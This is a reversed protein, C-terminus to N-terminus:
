WRCRRRAPGRTSGGSGPTPRREPRRSRRPRPAARRPWAASRPARRRWRRSRPRRAAPRPGRSGAGSRRPRPAPRRRRPAVGAAPGVRPGPQHHLRQEGVQPQPGAPQGLGLLEGLPRQAPEALDVVAVAHHLREAREVPGPGPEALLGVGLAADLLRDDSPLCNPSSPRASCPAAPTAICRPAPSCASVSASCTMSRLRSVPVVCSSADHQQRQGLALEAVDVLRHGGDLLDVDVVEREPQGGPGEHPGDGAVDLPRAASASAPRPSARRWSSRGRGRGPQGAHQGAVAGAVLPGAPAPELLEARQRRRDAVDHEHGPGWSSCSRGARSPVSGGVSADPQRRM